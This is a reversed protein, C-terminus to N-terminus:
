GGKINISYSRRAGAPPPPFPAARQVVQLAARDLRSSGSSRALSITSLGGGPSITFAVVSTGKSGVRPKPVGSIKKMVKGPYNSAAANGTAKKQLTGAGAVVAKKRSKGTVTGAAANQASNGRPPSQTKEPRTRAVKMPPAVSKELEASRTRPRLSRSVSLVPNEEPEIVHDMQPKTPHRQETPLQAEQALALPPEEAAMLPTTSPQIREPLSAAQTDVPPQAETVFEAPVPQVVEAPTAGDIVEPQVEEIIEQTKAASIAGATMEAFSSGINAEVAGASGEIEIGREASLGWIAVSHLATAISVALTKALRSSRIM